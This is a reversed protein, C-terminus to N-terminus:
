TSRHMGRSRRFCTNMSPIMCIATFLVAIGLYVAMVFGGGPKNLLQHLVLTKTLLDARNEERMASVNDVANQSIQSSQTLLSNLEAKATEIQTRILAVMKAQQSKFLELKKLEVERRKAEAAPPLPAFGAPIDELVSGSIISRFEDQLRILQESKETIQDHVNRKQEETASNAAAMEVTRATEIEADISDKFVLLTLYHSVFLGALFTVVARLILQIM